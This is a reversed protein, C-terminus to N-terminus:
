PLRRNPSPGALALLLGIAGYLAGNMLSIILWGFLMGDLAASDLAISGISPPCLFFFLTQKPVISHHFCYESYALLIWSVVFGVVAFAAVTRRRKGM